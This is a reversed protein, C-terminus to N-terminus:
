YVILYSFGLWRFWAMLWITIDRIFAADHVRYHGNAAPDYPNSLGLIEPEPEVALRAHGSLLGRASLAYLETTKGNPTPGIPRPLAIGLYLVSFLLIIILRRMMLNKGIATIGIKEYWAM